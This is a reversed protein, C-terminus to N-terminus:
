SVVAETKLFSEHLTIDSLVAPIESLKYLLKLTQKPLQKIVFAQIHPLIQSLRTKM